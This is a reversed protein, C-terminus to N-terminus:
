DQDDIQSRVTPFVRYGKPKENQLFFGWNDPLLVRQGETECTPGHSRASQVRPKQKIM